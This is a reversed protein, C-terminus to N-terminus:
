REAGCEPCAGASARLDYGCAVCLGRAARRRARHGRRWRVMGIAPLVAGVAAFLWWPLVLARDRQDEWVVSRQGNFAVFGPGVRDDLWTVPGM